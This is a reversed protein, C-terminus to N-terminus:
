VVVGVLSRQQVRVQRADHGPLRAAATNRWKESVVSLPLPYDARLMKRMEIRRTETMSTTTGVNANTSGVAGPPTEEQLSVPPPPEAEEANSSPPSGAAQSEVRKSVTEEDLSFDEVGSYDRNMYRIVVVDGTTFDAKTLRSSISQGNLKQVKSIPEM